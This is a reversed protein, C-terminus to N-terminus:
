VSAVDVRTALWEMMPRCRERSSDMQRDRQIGKQKDTVNYPSCSMQTTNLYISVTFTEEPVLEGPNDRVFDM